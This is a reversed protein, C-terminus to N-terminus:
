GDDRYLLAIAGPIIVAFSVMITTAFSLGFMDTLIEIMLHGTIVGISISILYAYYALIVDFLPKKNTRKQKEM